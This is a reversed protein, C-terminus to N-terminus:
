ESGAPPAATTMSRLSPTVSHNEISPQDDRQRVVEFYRKFSKTLEPTLKIENKTLAGRDLLDLIVLLLVPKHPREHSGSKDRRLNYFRELWQQWAQETPM